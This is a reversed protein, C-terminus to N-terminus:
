EISVVVGRPASTSRMGSPVEDPTIQRLRAVGAVNTSCDVLSPRSWAHKMVDATAPASKSRSQQQAVFEENNGDPDGGVSLDTASTDLEDTQNAPATDPAIGLYELVLKRLQCYMVTIDDAFFLFCLCLVGCPTLDRSPRRALSNDEYNALSADVRCSILNRYQV